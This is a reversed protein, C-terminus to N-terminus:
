HRRMGCVFGLGAVLWVLSGTIDFATLKDGHRWLLPFILGGRVTCLLTLTCVAARTLPLRMRVQAVDWAYAASLLMLGGIGIGSWFAYAGQVRASEVAAAPAGLFAYWEAGLWPALLHILAGFLAIGCAAALGARRWLPLPQPLTSANAGSEAAHLRRGM